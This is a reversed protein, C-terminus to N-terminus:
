VRSRMLLSRILLIDSRRMGLLGPFSLVIGCVIVVYLIASLLFHILPHISLAPLALRAALVALVLFGVLPCIQRALCKKYSINLFRANFYLQTNVGLMQIGVLKCALGIAGAHLGYREPPAILFYTLPLGILLFSIGINRYLRTQGTALLLSGSLQGYTQHAPYITMIAVAPAARAFEAGGFVLSLTSAQAVFFCALFSTFVFFLPVYTEFLFAMRERDNRAFSISFERLLLPTMAGTFLFCVAGIQSSFGFFGQQVSGGFVQLLWRDFLNVILGAVSYLVLPNCYQFFERVYSCARERSLHVYTGRLFGSRAAIFSCTGILFVLGAYHIFFYSVLDLTGSLFLSILLAAFLALKWLLSVLAWIVAVGVLAIGTVAQARRFPPGHRL